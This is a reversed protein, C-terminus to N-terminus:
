IQKRKEMLITVIYTTVINLIIIYLYNIQNWSFFIISMFLLFYNVYEKKIVFSGILVIPLFYFLFTASTFVM